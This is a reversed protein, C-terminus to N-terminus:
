AIPRGHAQLREEPGDRPHHRHGRPWPHWMIGSSIKAGHSSTGRPEVVIRQLAMEFGLAIPPVLRLKLQDSLTKSRAENSM